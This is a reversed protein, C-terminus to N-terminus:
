QGGMIKDTLENARVRALVPDAARREGRTSWVDCLADLTEGPRTNILAVVVQAAEDGTMGALM